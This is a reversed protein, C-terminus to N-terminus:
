CSIVSLYSLSLLYKLLLFLETSWLAHKAHLSPLALRFALYFKIGLWQWRCGWASLWSYWRFTVSHAGGLFCFLCFLFGLGGWFNNRHRSISFDLILTGTTHLGKWTAFKRSNESFASHALFRTPDRVASNGSM